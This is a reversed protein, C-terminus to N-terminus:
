NPSFFVNIIETEHPYSLKSIENFIVLCKDSPDKKTKIKQHTVCFLGKEGM